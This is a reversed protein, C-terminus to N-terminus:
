ETTIITEPSGGAALSRRAAEWVRGCGVVGLVPRPHPAATRKRGHRDQTM